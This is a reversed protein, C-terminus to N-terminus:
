LFFYINKLFLLYGNKFVAVGREMTEEMRL